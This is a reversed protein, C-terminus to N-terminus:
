HRTVLHYVGWIGAVLMLSALSSFLGDCVMNILLSWGTALEVMTLIVALWALQRKLVRARHIRRCELTLDYPIRSTRM